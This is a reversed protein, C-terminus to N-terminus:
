FLDVIEKLVDNDFYIGEKTIKPERITYVYKDINIYGHGHNEFSVLVFNGPDGEPKYWHFLVGIDKTNGSVSAYNSSYELSRKTAGTMYGFHLVNGIYHKKCDVREFICWEGAYIESCKKKYFLLSNNKSSSKKNYKELESDRVRLLRDSSLNTSNGSFFWCLSSKRVVFEKGLEDHVMIFKSQPGIHSKYKDYNKLELNGRVGLFVTLDKLFEASEDSNLSNDEQNPLESDLVQEESNEPDDDIDEFIDSNNKILVNECKNFEIIMGLSKVDSFADLKAQNIASNIESIDPLKFNIKETNNKEHRPFCFETTSHEFTSSCIDNQLQIRQIRHM